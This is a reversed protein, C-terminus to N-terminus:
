REFVFRFRSTIGQPGLTVSPTVLGGSATKTRFVACDETEIANAGTDLAASVETVLGLTEMVLEHPHIAHDLVM